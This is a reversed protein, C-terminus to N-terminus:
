VDKKWRRMEAMFALNCAAHASHLLGSEPDVAEPDNAMALAHRLFADLYRESAVQRWNDPDGYKKNGYERVAAIDYVIQMPVLSLKPKGDDSKATQSDHIEDLLSVAYMLGNYESVRGSKELDEARSRIQEEYKTWNM